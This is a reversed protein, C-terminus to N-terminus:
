GGLGAVLWAREELLAILRAVGPSPVPTRRRGALEDLEAPTLAARVAAIEGALREVAAAREARTREAYIAAYDRVLPAAGGQEFGVPAPPTEVQAAVAVSASRADVRELERTADASEVPAAPPAAPAVPRPEPLEGLVHWAYGLAVAGLAAIVGIAIPARM